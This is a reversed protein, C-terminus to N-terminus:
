QNNLYFKAQYRPYILDCTKVVFWLVFALPISFLKIYIPTGLYSFFSSMPVLIAIWRYHPFYFAFIISCIDAPYFYREHMKPLIYPVLLVITTALHILRDLTIELKSKYVVYTLLFIAFITIIVGLPAVINYSNNPIWQYINPANKALEKYKNAQNFYILLLEQIPRGAVWAPMIAILYVLFPIPLYYWKIRNKILFILLLPSLFMAQLKFSLAIGFSVLASLQKQISLFYICAILGTTYISDCQGWLASNYIVVPSLIVTIFAFIAKRGEPYKLKVIKYTFFACVFDVSMAFLKIALIKPLGSLVTGAILIWYLYPPTYDAFSYKLASFGGNSVIFDYWPALFYKYDVSKNPVCILRIIVACIICVILYRPFRQQFSILM